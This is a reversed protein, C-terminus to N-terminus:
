SKFNFHTQICQVYSQKDNKFVITLRENTTDNKLRKLFRDNRKSRKSFSYHDNKYFSKRGNKIRNNKLSFKNVIINVITLSPDDYAITLLPDENVITLSVVLKYFHDNQFVIAKLFSSKWFVITKLFLLITHDRPM